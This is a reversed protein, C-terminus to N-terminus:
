SAEDGEAPEASDALSKIYQILQMTQEESLQGQFTPMIVLEEFGAVIRAQPNVISERLYGDDATATDGDALRVTKGYLGELTPGRGHDQAGHCTNCAFREFLKEGSAALSVGTSGALWQQFEAPEMAYVWGIMASHNTGCYEACFLHYRGPKTAEFWLNTYRGPLVDTKVRFAPVFFDHIVDESTM